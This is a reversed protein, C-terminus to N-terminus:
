STDSPPEGDGEGANDRRRNAVASDIIDQVHNMHFLLDRANRLDSVLRSPPTPSPTPPPVRFTVRQRYVVVPPSSSLTPPPTLPTPPTPPPSDIVYRAGGNVSLDAICVPCTTHDSLWTELCGACFEHSCESGRRVRSGADVDALCVPCRDLSHDDVVPAAANIDRCAKRVSGGMAEQMRLNDEYDAGSGPFDRPLMPLPLLAMSCLLAHGMYRDVPIQM